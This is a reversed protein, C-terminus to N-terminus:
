ANAPPVFQGNIYSWGVEAGSDGVPVAHYIPEIYFGDPPTWPPPVSCFRCEAVINTVSDIIAYNM